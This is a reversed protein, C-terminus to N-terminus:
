IFSAAVHRHVSSKLGVEIKVRPKWGLAKMKSTDALTDRVDGKQKEVYKV